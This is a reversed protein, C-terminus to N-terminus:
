LSSRLTHTTTSLALRLNRLSSLVTRWIGRAERILKQLAKRFVLLFFKGAVWICLEMFPWCGHQSNVVLRSKIQFSYDLIIFQVLGAADCGSRFWFANRQLCPMSRKGCKAQCHRAWITLRVQLGARWPQHVHFGNLPQFHQLLFEPSICYASM